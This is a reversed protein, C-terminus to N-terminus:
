GFRSWLMGLKAWLRLKTFTGSGELFYLDDDRLRGLEAQQAEAQRDDVAVLMHFHNSLCTWSLVRVGSFAEQQRMM